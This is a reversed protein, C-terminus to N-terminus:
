TDFGHQLSLYKKKLGGSIKRQAMIYANLNYRLICCVLSSTIECILLRMLSSYDVVRCKAYGM